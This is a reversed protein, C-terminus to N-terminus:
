KAVMYVDQRLHNFIPLGKRAEEVMDFDIDAYLIQEKEDCEAIVQGNPDVVLSHGLSKYSFEEHRAASAGVFFIQNDDARCEALPKWHPAGLVADFQAPLIALKAGRMAMARFIEPFHVDFCIAVGIKGWKSDFVTIENGPEFTAAESFRMRRNDIEFLHIKRHRAIVEGNEDIVFCTNYVKGDATEPVSGGILLIKNEKAWRKMASLTKEHGLSACIKFYKRSYPCAFMEPLVVIEAGNEAAEAIMKEAKELTEDQDIETRIQYVALKM